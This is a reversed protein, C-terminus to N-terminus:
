MYQARLIPCAFELGLLTSKCSGAQYLASCQPPVMGLVARSIM